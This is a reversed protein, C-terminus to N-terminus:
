WLEHGGEERTERDEEKEDGEEREVVVIERSKKGILLWGGIPNDL